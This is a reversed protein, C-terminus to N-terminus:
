VRRFTPRALSAREFSGRAFDPSRLAKLAQRSIDGNPVGATAGLDGNRGSTREGAGDM